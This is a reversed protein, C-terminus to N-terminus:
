SPLGTNYGDRHTRNIHHQTFHRVCSLILCVHFQVLKKYLGILVAVCEKATDDHDYSQTMSLWMNSMETLTVCGCLWTHSQTDVM